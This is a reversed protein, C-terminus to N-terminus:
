EAAQEQPPGRRPPADGQATEEAERQEKCSICLTTVPRAQLRKFGIPGGCDECENITGAALRDQAARIKGLLKKERDRLRLETSIMGEETSEDLSDRGSDREARTMSLELGDQAKALLQDHWKKLIDQLELRQEPTLDNM